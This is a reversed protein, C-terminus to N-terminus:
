QIIKGYCMRWIPLGDMRLVQRQRCLKLSQVSTLFGRFPCLRTHDLYACCVEHRQSQIECTVQLHVMKSYVLNPIKSRTEWM